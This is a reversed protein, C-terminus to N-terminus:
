DAARRLTEMVPRRLVGRLGWWGAALALVAGVASGVLPVWPSPAWSFEFVMRALVGGVAIAGVSALLGALAGVGLLEARQVQSLLGSGAGLARMVAYERARSDRTASVAAFLVVLGAALTFGFLFEVARIVQDLIRQIQAVSASVDVNTINPFQRALAADFGAVAPARFASIHSVPVGDLRAQPFMVFFNVRMSGWDVKRLSTIRGERPQGAIDFRLRDGLKLGLTQAIGDEVSLADAEDPTWRGANVTNHSPLSADHSLNFERDVLRQARDGAFQAPVVERGNIAVLRGRIMPYWDYRSVGADKLAKQFAEGQEPQLNIVFRDPADPPTASRWASILDTRLLVLLVLALLGVALATIQLVAFAPRASLQRTALVLWRPAQSRPVMRGLASVAAWALLAFVLIAAAFGGVTLLGMRVDAAAAVLLAAFGAAGALLVGLSAAKLGGVDRRIVRLPPVRSLQLVPPLGFAVLLTMGVGIGFAAPALTAPPLAADLLGALLRVFVFHVAYGLAVGAGSAILGVAGFELAYAGAMARQPAGLVRLMACDDLHRQAFDRAAIAVAVAALLAALLAVLNLFRSARDLTQRMEPRGAELSEIRVGRLKGSQIQAEAWRVYGTVDAQRQDPAAVALRHTIRSAPQVLGTAPLDDAHLMARPAFSMFGAGRDPEQIIVREIHLSKDGLWISDGVKLQLADLLGGEVWVNGPTPGSRSAQEPTGPGSNLRLQGRLPYGAGVAKVAVLRVGGGREDPARAMSPFGSNAAVQLGLARAHEAFAAPLPQDSAIVADGGLLQRADRALAADLRGAFFGVASLAAVALMVAVMLLRLEGARFDRWAQRWALSGMSVPLREM